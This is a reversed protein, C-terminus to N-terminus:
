HSRRQLACPRSEVQDGPGLDGAASVREEDVRGIDNEFSWLHPCAPCDWLPGASFAALLNLLVAITTIAMAVTLEARRLRADKM